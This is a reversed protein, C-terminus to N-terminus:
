VLSISKKILFQGFTISVTSSGTEGFALVDLFSSFDGSYAVFALYPSSRFTESSFGLITVM